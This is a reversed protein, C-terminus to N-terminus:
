VFESYWSRTGRKGSYSERMEKSEYIGFLLVSLVGLLFLSVIRKRSNIRSYSPM